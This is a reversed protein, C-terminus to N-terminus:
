PKKSQDLKERLGRLFGAAQTGADKLAAEGAQAAEHAGEGLARGFDGPM